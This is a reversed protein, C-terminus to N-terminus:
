DLWKKRRFYIIMGTVSFVIVGWIVFYGYKWHLEPMYDFNMGYIGVIFSLPIFITAIITLVKMVMNMRFSIASLYADKLESSAERFAEITENVQVVHDHIDRIFSVITDDLLESESHELQSLAERLPILSKRAIMINKKILHNRDMLEPEASRSIEEELNDLDDSIKETVTYYNDVVVDILAYMLYDLGRSRIKGKSKSLREKVPNFLPSEGEQLSLLLDKTLIFSVQETEIKGLTNFTLAKMTFFLGDDFDEFKPRQETNLIDELILSPIKLEEGAKEILETQHLGRFEVWIKGGEPLLHLKDDLTMAKETIEEASYFTSWIKPQEMRIRGVHVLSGPPLGIKSTKKTTNAM